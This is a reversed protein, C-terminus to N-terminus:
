WDIMPRLGTAKIRALLPALDELWGKDQGHPRERLNGLDKDPIRDLLNNIRHFTQRITRAQHNKRREDFFAFAFV